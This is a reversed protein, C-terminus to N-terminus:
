EHACGTCCNRGKLGAVGESFIIPVMVLSASPDAWWWDFVANFLLGVLLLGSLYACFDAQKADSRMANSGIDAAVRRKAGALLPMAILSGIAVGIGLFSQEPAEHRLLAFGSECTVYIALAIFCAGVMRLSTREARDRHTQDRDRHLRWVVALASAMEILSDAGFAILATSRSLVGAAISLMTECFNWAISFCQLRLGRRVLDHRGVATIGSM